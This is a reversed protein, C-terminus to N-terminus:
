GIQAITALIIVLLFLGLLIYAPIFVLWWSIAIVGVLKLVILIALLLWLFLRFM